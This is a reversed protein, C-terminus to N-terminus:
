PQRGVIKGTRADVFVVIVKNGDLFKLGYRMTREDFKPGGLYVMDRYPARAQVMAVLRGLPLVQGQEAAARASEAERDDRAAAPAAILAVGGLAAALLIPRNM